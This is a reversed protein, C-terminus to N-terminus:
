KGLVKGVESPQLGPESRKFALMSREIVAGEPIKERAVINKRTAERYKKEAERLDLSGDGFSKESERLRSVMEKFENPNLASQYDYGKKSRDPTIHKEIMVAGMAAAISPLVLALETEADVHDHYGVRLGYRKRLSEMAKLNTDELLTPYNQFGHILTIDSNGCSSILEIAEQIEEETGGGTSLLIPRGRKAVKAILDPNTLDTSHIKFTSVGLRSALGFSQEDFVDALVELGTQKALSIVDEWEQPTLEIKSFIEHRSDTSVMLEDASFIQFKIGDAGTRASEEVLKKCLAADGEHASAIEVIVRAPVGQRDSNEGM